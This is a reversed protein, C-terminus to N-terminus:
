HALDTDRILKNLESFTFTSKITVGKETRKVTCCENYADHQFVLVYGNDAAEELFIEKESMTVLPQIDVSPVYSIPIHATTPIFDAVFVLKLDNYDIIPILQGMTHGNMIRFSIGPLWDEQEHIFKLRGTKFLPQLNDYFYAAGERKNPNMAWEWQAQSCWYSANRFLPVSKGSTTDMTTAGGVHDDHLHTFVIDTIDAPSLRNITLENLLLDQEHRYRYKYYKADRKNGMGADIIIHRDGKSILLCRTVIDNLNNEDAPYIKSWLSKPVVGFAVGGDMKWRDAVLLSIQMNCKEPQM